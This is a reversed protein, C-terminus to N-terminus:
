RVNEPRWHRSALPVVAVTPSLSDAVYVFEADASLAVTEAKRRLDVSTVIAKDVPDFVWVANHQVDTVYFHRGDGSIQLHRPLDGAPVSETSDTVTDILELSHLCTVYLQDGGPSPIVDLPADALRIVTHRQSALEIASVANLNYHTAYLKAGDPSVALADPAFQMPMVDILTFTATDIVSVSGQGRRRGSEPRSSGVYLRSGDPSSVLANAFSDVAVVTVMAGADTMASVWSNRGQNHASYLYNDAPSVVEATSPDRRTTTVTYDETDITSVWGDFGAVYLRSGDPSVLTRKPDVSIAITRVVRNRQDIVSVADATTVYTRGANRSTAIHRAHGSLAITVTADPPAQRMRATDVSWLHACTPCQLSVRTGANELLYQWHTQCNKKRLCHRCDGGHNCNPCPLWARRSRDASPDIPLQNV